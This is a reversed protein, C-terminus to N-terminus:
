MGQGPALAVSDYNKVQRLTHGELPIVLGCSTM